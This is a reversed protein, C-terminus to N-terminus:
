DGAALNTGYALCFSSKGKAARRLRQQGVVAYLTCLSRTIGFKWSLKAPLSILGGESREAPSNNAPTATSTATNHRLLGVTSHTASPTAAISTATLRVAGTRRLGMFM